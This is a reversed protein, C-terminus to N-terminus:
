EEDPRQRRHRHDDPRDPVSAADDVTVGNRRTGVPHRREAEGDIQPHIGKGEEHDHEDRADPSEYERVGPAVETVTPPYATDTFAQLRAEGDSVLM